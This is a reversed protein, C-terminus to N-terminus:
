TECLSQRLYIAVPLSAEGTLDHTRPSNLKFKIRGTNSLLLLVKYKLHARRLPASMFPESGSHSMLQQKSNPFSLAADHARWSIPDFYTFSYLM